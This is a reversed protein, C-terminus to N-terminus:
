GQVIRISGEEAALFENAAKQQTENLSPILVKTNNFAETWSDPLNVQIEDGQKEKRGVNNLMNEDSEVIETSDEDTTNTKIGLLKGGFSTNRDYPNCAAFQRQFNLISVVFHIEYDSM